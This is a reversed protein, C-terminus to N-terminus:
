RTRNKNFTEVLHRSLRTDAFHLHMYSALCNHVKFGDRKGDVGYGKGMRYAFKADDAINRIRSYHFEHGRINSITGFPSANCDAKTYNLTLKQTMITDADILGVMKKKKWKKNSRRGLEYEGISRTLYMLGGCEAYIPIGHEAAKLISMKMSNNKSLEESLIEPFGGGLIIGSIDDPLTCDHVPSFFSLSLRQKRLADFNDAYYFNFSEDLAIAVKGRNTSLEATSQKSHVERPVQWVDRIKDLNIQEAAYKASRIIVRKKKDGLTPTPILGLRREEMRIKINREIVGVIPVKIKGAFADRILTAHRQSSVNNLIIGAIKLSENFHIFGLAIAAISRAAKAADIVLIISADLLRAIHATSGFDDKGSVGDFLGMAGEIVGFDADFCCNNFCQLVGSKRMMWIDLNRSQRGTVYTHYSPDIFDPGVKFPQVVFGKRRLAYMIAAAVTSKGVGSTVGAIVLKRVSM